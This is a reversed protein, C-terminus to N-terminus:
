ECGQKHSHVILLKSITAKLIISHYSSEQARAYDPAKKFVPEVLRQEKQVMPMPWPRQWSLSLWGCCYTHAAQFGNNIKKIWLSHCPVLKRFALNHAQQCLNLTTDSNYTTSHHSENGSLQVPTLLAPLKSCHRLPTSAPLRMMLPGDDHVWDHSSQVAPRCRIAMLSM